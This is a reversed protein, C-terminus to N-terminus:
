PRFRPLRVGVARQAEVHWDAVVAEREINGADNQGLGLFVAAADDNFGHVGGARAASRAPQLAEPFLVAILIEDDDDAAASEAGMEGFAGVVQEEWQFVELGQVFKEALESGDKRM